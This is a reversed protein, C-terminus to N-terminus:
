FLTDRTSFHFEQRKFLLQELFQSAAQCLLHRPKLRHGLGDRQEVDEGAQGLSGCQMAVDFWKDVLAARDMNQFAAVRDDLLEATIQREYGVVRSKVTLAISQHYEGSGFHRPFAGVEALNGQDYQQRLDPTEHRCGFGADSQDIADERSYSGRVIQGGSLAGKHHLHDLGSVDQITRGGAAQNEQILDASPGTGVISQADGPSNRLM